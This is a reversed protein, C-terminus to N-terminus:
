IYQPKEASDGLTRRLTGIIVNISHDFEVITDNPWLKKRIEERTVIERDRELLMLLVRLPQEQLLIRRDVDGEAAHPWLEGTKLDLAFDGFRVRVPVNEKM